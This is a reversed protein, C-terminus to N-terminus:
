VNSGDSSSIEQQVQEMVGLANCDSDTVLDSILLGRVGATGADIVILTTAVAKAVQLAAVGAGVWSAGPSRAQPAVHRLAFKGLCGQAGGVQGV